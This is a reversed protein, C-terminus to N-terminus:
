MTRGFAEQFAEAEALYLKLPKPRGTVQVFVENRKRYTLYLSVLGAAAFATGGLVHMRTSYLGFGFLAVSLIGLFWDFSQVSVETISDLEVSTAAADVVLLRKDTLGVTGGNRLPAHYRLAEGEPVAAQLREFSM